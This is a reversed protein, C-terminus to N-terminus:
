YPYDEICQYVEQSTLFHYERHCNPCINVIETGGEEKTKPYHHEELIVTKISCWECKFRGIGIGEFKKNKLVDVVNEKSMRTIRVVNDKLLKKLKLNITSRSIFPLTRRLTVRDIGFPEQRIAAEIVASHIGYKKAVDANIHIPPENILLKSSRMGKDM